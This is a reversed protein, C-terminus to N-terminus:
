IIISQKLNKWEISNNQVIHNNRLDSYQIYKCKKRSNIYMYELGIHGCYVDQLLIFDHFKNLPGYFGLWILLQACQVAIIERKGGGVIALVTSREGLGKEPM